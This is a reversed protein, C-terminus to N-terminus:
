PVPAFGEAGRKRRGRRDYDVPYSFVRSFGNGLVMRRISGDESREFRIQVRDGEAFFLDPEAAFIRKRARGSPWIYLNGDKERIVVVRDGPFDYRGAYQKLDTPDIEITERFRRLTSREHAVCHIGINEVSTNGNALIAVGRRESPYFGLFCTSGGTNAHLWFLSQGRIQSVRWGRYLDRPIRGQAKLPELMAQISDTLETDILGLHAQMFKGLDVVNSRLGAAGTLYPIDWIDRQLDGDHPRALLYKQLESLEVSTSTMGLPGTIEEEVLTEYEKGTALSCALGLLGIGFSSYAETTGPPGIPNFGAFFESLQEETYEYFPNKSPNSNLNFPINPLQALHHALDSLTPEGETWKEPNSAIPVWRSLPDDWSLVGREVLRQTILATFAETAPGVEYVTRKEVSRLDGERYTGTVFYEPGEDTVRVVAFSRALGREVMEEIHQQLAEPSFGAASDASVAVSDAEQASAGLALFWLGGGLCWVKLWHRVKPSNVTM